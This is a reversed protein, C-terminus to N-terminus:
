FEFAIYEREVERPSNKNVFSPSIIDGIGSLTPSSKLYMAFIVKVPIGVAGLTLM